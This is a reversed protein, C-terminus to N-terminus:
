NILNTISQDTMGQFTRQKTNYLFDQNITKYKFLPSVKYFCVPSYIQDIIIPDCSNPQTKNILSLLRISCVMPRNVFDLYNFIAGKKKSLEDIQIRFLPIDIKDKNFFKMKIPPSKANEKTFETHLFPWDVGNELKDLSKKVRSFQGTILMFKNNECTTTAHSFDIIQVNAIKHKFLNDQNKCKMNSKLEEFTKVIRIVQIEKDNCQIILYSRTILLDLRDVFNEWDPKSFICISSSL